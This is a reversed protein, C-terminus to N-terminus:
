KGLGGFLHLYLSVIPFLFSSQNAVAPAYVMGPGGHGDIVGLCVGGTGVGEDGM